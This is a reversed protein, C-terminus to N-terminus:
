RREKAQQYLEKARALRSETPDTLRGFLIDPLDRETLPLAKFTDSELTLPKIEELRKKRKFDFVPGKLQRGILSLRMIRPSGAYDHFRLYCLGNALSAEKVVREFEEDSMDSIDYDKFVVKPPLPMFEVRDLEPNGHDFVRVYGHDTGTGHELQVLSGQALIRDKRTALHVHGIFIYRSVIDLWQSEVHCSKELMTPLQYRFAGHMVAYDVKELGHETLMTTVDAWTDQPDHRWEDPLFLVNIGFEPLYEITLTQHYKYNIKLGLDEITRGVVVGQKDDHSPTGELLRLIINNEACYRVLDEVADRIPLYHESGILTPRDFLDGAIFIIDPARDGDRDRIAERLTEAILPTPIRGHGLHVDSICVSYLSNVGTTKEKM